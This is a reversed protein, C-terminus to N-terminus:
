SPKRKPRDFVVASASVIYGAYKCLCGDPHVYVLATCHASLRAKVLGPGVVALKKGCLKCWAPLKAENEAAPADEYLPRADDDAKCKLRNVVIEYRDGEHIEVGLSEELFKAGVWRGIAEDL